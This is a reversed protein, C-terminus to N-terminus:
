SINSSFFDCIQKLALSKPVIIFFIHSYHFKKILYLSFIYKKENKYSPRIATRHYTFVMPMHFILTKTKSKKTISIGDYVRLSYM